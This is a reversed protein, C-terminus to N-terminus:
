REHVARQVEGLGLVFLLVAAGAQALALTYPNEVGLVALLLPSSFGAGVLLTVLVRGARAGAGSETGGSRPQLVLLLLPLALLLYHPWALRGAFLSIVPGIAIMLADLRATGADPPASRRARVLFAAVLGLACTLLVWAADFGVADRVLRALAFNGWHVGVDLQQDLTRAMGLWASWCAAGGFFLSSSALACAAGLALGLAGEGLERWRRALAWSGGLLVAALAVNPKFAVGLGLAAGALVTRWARHAGGLLVIPVALLGLQLANVNGEALDNQLAPVGAAVYALVLLIESPAFGFHWGLAALSLLACALGLVRYRQLDADYDGSQLGWIATYLFPTSAAQVEQKRFDAAAQQRQSSGLAARGLFTRALRPRSEPAYVDDVLKEEVAQGVVWFQYFDIGPAWTLSSWLGGLAVALLVALLVGPGQRALLADRGAPRSSARAQEDPPGM